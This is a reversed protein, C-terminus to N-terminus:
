SIQEMVHDLETNNRIRWIDKGIQVPGFIINHKLNEYKGQVKYSSPPVRLSTCTNASLPHLFQQKHNQTTSSRCCISFHRRIQYM